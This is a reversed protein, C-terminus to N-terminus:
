AENHKAPMFPSTDSFDGAWIYRLSGYSRLRIKPNDSYIWSKFNGGYGRHPYLQGYKQYTKTYDLDSLLADMTAATLVSDDTFFAGKPFLEFDL